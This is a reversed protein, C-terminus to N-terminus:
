LHESKNCKSFKNMHIFCVSRCNSLLLINIHCFFFIVLFYIFISFFIIKLLAHGRLMWLQAAVAMAFGFGLVRMEAEVGISSGAVMELVAVNRGLKTLKVFVSNCTVRSHYSM